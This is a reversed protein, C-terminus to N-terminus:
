PIPDVMFDAPANGQKHLEVMRTFAAEIHRCFRPTDFLPYADRNQILRTRLDRLRPSDGAFKVSLDEYDRWSNTILEPLGVATLLSAAVRGAFTSGVCTLVPVGAWLADSATTHANHPLTDLVLDAFRLRALHEPLPLRPAFIVREASIGRAETERALNNKVFANAELLWLVSGDVAALIRMWVDFMDPTLKHANNFCCFVFCEAPLGAALRDGPLGAILKKRDNSQYCHPLRVIKEAYFVEDGAPIVIPDAIIYDIYDAGMTGPFGLYNVQIPAPRLRFVDTREIGFYGNLNVLIDVEHRDILDAIHESSQGAVDHFSDFASELRRRMDSDDSPGTSLGFLEFRTKDHCEFLDATLYSTAQARFEGCIYAVRIKDHAKNVSTRSTPQVTAPYQATVFTRACELQEAPSQSTALLPFPTSVIKGQRVHEHLRAIESNLDAWDCMHM